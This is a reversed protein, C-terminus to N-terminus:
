LDNIYVTGGAEVAPTGILKARPYYNAKETRRSEGSSDEGSYVTRAFIEPDPGWAVRKSVMARFSPTGYNEYSISNLLGDTIYVHKGEADLNKPSLVAVSSGEAMATLGVSSAIGAVALIGAIKKHLVNM